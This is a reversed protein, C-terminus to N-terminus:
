SYNLNFVDTVPMPGDKETKCASTMLITAGLLGGFLLYITRNM